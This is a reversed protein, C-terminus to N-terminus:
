IRIRKPKITSTSFLTSLKGHFVTANHERLLEAIEANHFGASTKFLAKEIPDDILEEITALLEEESHFQQNTGNLFAEVYSEYTIVNNFM